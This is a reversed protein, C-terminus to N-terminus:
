GTMTEGPSWPTGAVRALFPAAGPSAVGEPAGGAASSASPGAALPPAAGGLAARVAAEVYPAALRRVWKGLVDTEVNVRAGPALAGLTTVALTHPIVAVGFRGSAADAETLTLSVGDLAVSGKEVMDAALRPDSGFRLRVEGGAEERSLVRATGDVHGQVIHGDLRGGLRMARELNVEAAPGRELLDGLWTRALTEPVADFAAASGDLSVVTLCCGSVAVSDGVRVGEALAGLDLVLRLAGGRAEARLVRGRGEVIGTFV